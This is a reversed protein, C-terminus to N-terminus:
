LLISIVVLGCEHTVSCYLPKYNNHINFNEELNRALSLSCLNRPTVNDGRSISLESWITYYSRVISM